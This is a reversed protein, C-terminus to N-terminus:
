VGDTLSHIPTGSPAAFDTGTHLKLIGSIPHIRNGFPSSQHFVGRQLPFLIAGENSMTQTARNGSGVNSFQCQPDASLIRARTGAAPVPVLGEESDVAELSHASGAWSEGDTQLSLVHAIMSGPKNAQVFGTLPAIITVAALALIVLARPVAAYRQFRRRRRREAGRSRRRTVSEAM